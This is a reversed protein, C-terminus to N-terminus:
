LYKSREERRIFRDAEPTGPAKMNPGDWDINKQLQLAVIGALGIETLHGGFDFNSFVKPGGLCADVWEDLHGKVRPLSQPVEKAAAHNDAGLFRKEGTLKIYCDSNWLGSQLQGKEGILLCGTGPLNGSANKLGATIEEPPMDGGTYFNLKVPGRPGRAPFQFRVTCAKAFSEKGLGTGSIEIRTPYDLALARVPLNFAHCCFDGVSGSGFDYWGRWNHPHYVHSKYPRQPATGLWFDWDLGAPVPDSGAPREVGSPWGHPPHWIHIESIAGFFNAAILEMSRRLNGSASGQNGTQTIVKAAKSLERVQRAEAVTHTLPKECYIHKGARLVARCIPAHWHDPTAIVVADLSKEKDLLIRYDSYVAAKALKDGHQKQSNQIQGADVDCLAVANHGLQLIRSVHGQIQGGMGIFAVNLKADPKREQGRLMGSPLILLSGTATGASKLFGRRTVIPPITANM